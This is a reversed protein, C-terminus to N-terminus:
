TIALQLVPPIQNESGGFTRKEPLTRGEAKASSMIRQPVDCGPPLLVDNPSLVDLDVQVAPHIDNRLLAFPRGMTM